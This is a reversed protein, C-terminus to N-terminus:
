VPRRYLIIGHSEAHASFGLAQFVHSSAANSSKVRGFLVAEPAISRLAQIATTLMPKALGRGRVTADLSYHVEWSDGEKQFRVQGIPLGTATEIVYLRCRETDKMRRGFWAHHEAADITDTTFANRRVLPDNAWALILNEDGWDAVRARLPTQADLLM